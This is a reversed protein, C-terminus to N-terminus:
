GTMAAVFDGLKDQAVAPGASVAFLVAIVLSINRMSM